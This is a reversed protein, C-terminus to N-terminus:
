WEAPSRLGGCLAEKNDKAGTVPDRQTPSLQSTAKILSCLRWSIPKFPQNCPGAQHQPQLWHSAGRSATAGSGATSGSTPLAALRDPFPSLLLQQPLPVQLVAKGWLRYSWCQADQRLLRAVGRSCVRGLCYLGQSPAWCAGCSGGMSVLCVLLCTVAARFQWRM